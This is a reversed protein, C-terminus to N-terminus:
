VVERCAKYATRGRDAMMPMRMEFSICNNRLIGVSGLECHVSASNRTLPHKEGKSGIESVRQCVDVEVNAFAVCTEERDRRSRVAAGALEVEPKKRRCVWECFVFDQDPQIASWATARQAPKELFM